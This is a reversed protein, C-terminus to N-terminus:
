LRITDGCAAKDLASRLETADKVLISKGQAPTDALASKVYVRPLEAPGDFKGSDAARAALCGGTLVFAFAPLARRFFPRMVFAEVFGSLRTNENSKTPVTQPEVALNGGLWDAMRGVNDDGTDSQLSQQVK